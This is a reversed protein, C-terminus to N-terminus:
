RRSSPTITPTPIPATLRPPKRPAPCTEGARRLARRLPIGAALHRAQVVGRRAEPLFVRRILPGIEKDRAPMQQLPPDSYSFRSSRAGGDHQSVSPDGRPHPRQPPPRSHAAELFMEGAAHYKSAKAIGQPLWHKHARMWGLKGAKFSPNGKDTRPYGISHADFTAAKWKPSNLEVMSVPKGLQDSLEALAADRKRLLQDRAQEAASQDIRIGRRRMELVMPLLDVNLRYADRTGEQDLIPNLTECLRLTAVADAEAYPGVLRAPLKCIHEQLNGKRLM